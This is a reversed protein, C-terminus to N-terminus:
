LLAMLVAIEMHRLVGCTSTLSCGQLLALLLLPPCVNPVAHLHAGQRVGM